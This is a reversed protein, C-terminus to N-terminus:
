QQCAPCYHTGRSAVVSRHIVNGCRFCKRDRRGYVRLREQFSGTSGSSDRYDSMSTGRWEIAETLVERVAAFLLIREERSLSRSPRDPLIGARHLAEDAYINGLGALVEQKLLLAKISITRKEVENDFYPFHFDGSLPEPGLTALGKIEHLRDPPLWWITGFKRVDTFTLCSGDTFTFILHTHKQVCAGSHSFVLQGTMRLHIVIVSEDDLYLLLYKGRRGASVVRRGPLNTKIEEVSPVKISGSYRIEVDAFTRELIVGELGRRITEVEPLEPM